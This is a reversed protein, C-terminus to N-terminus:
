PDFAVMVPVGECDSVIGTPEVAGTGLPRWATSQVEAVAAAVAQSVQQGSAVGLQRLGQLDLLEPPGKGKLRGVVYGPPISARSAGRIRVNPTKSM